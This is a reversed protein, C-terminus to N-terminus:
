TERAPWQATLEKYNFAAMHPVGCVGPAIRGCVAARRPAALRAAKSTTTM